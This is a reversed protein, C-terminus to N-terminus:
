GAALLVRQQGAEGGTGRQRRPPARQAPHQGAGADGDATDELPGAPSPVVEAPSHGRPVTASVPQTEGPPGEDDTAGPVAFGVEVLSTPKPTGTLRVRDASSRGPRSARPASM